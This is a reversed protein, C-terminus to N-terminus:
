KKVAAESTDEFLSKYKEVLSVINDYDSDSAKEFTEVNGLLEIVPATEPNDKRLKLFAARIKEITEAPLNGRVMIPENLIDATTALVKLQAREADNKLLERADDYVTGADFKKYLVNYLINDHKKLYDIRSLDKEPDIGNEMMLILPFLYGSASKKDTFAFSKGKLDKITNIGSDARVVIMGRYSKKKFRTPMLITKAGTTQRALPYNITGHWAIDIKGDKLFKNLEDYNPTLVLRAASVGLEKKLYEMLKEHDKVMKRPDLYPIRGVRLDSGLPVLAVSSTGAAQQLSVPATAGEQQLSVSSTAGAQLSVPATADGAFVSAACILEAAFAIAAAFMIINQFIKM